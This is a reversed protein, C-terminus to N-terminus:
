AILDPLWSDRTKCKNEVECIMKDISNNLPSIKNPNM